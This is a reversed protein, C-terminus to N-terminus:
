KGANGSQATIRTTSSNAQGNVNERATGNASEAPTAWVVGLLGAMAGTTAGTFGAVASAILNEDLTWVNQDWYSIFVAVMGAVMCVGSLVLLWRPEVTLQAHSAGRLLAFWILGALGTIAGILIPVWIRSESRSVSIPTRNSNLYPSRVILKGDYTGPRFKSADVDLKLILEAGFVEWSKVTLVGPPLEWSGQEPLVRLRPKPFRTPLECGTAKFVLSIERHGTERKFWLHTKSSREDLALTARESEANQPTSQRDPQRCPAASAVPASLLMLGTIVVAALVAQRVHRRRAAHFPREARGGHSTARTGIEHSPKRRRPLPRCNTM